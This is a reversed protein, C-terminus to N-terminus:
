RSARSAWCANTNTRSSKSSSRWRATGIRWFGSAASETVTIKLAAATADGPLGALAGVNVDIQEGAALAGDTMSRATRQPVNDPPVGPALFARIDSEATITELPPLKSWDLGSTKPEGTGAVAFTV